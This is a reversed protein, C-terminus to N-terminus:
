NLIIELRQKGTVTFVGQFGLIGISQRYTFVDCCSQYQMKSTVSPHIKTELISDAYEFGSIEPLNLIPPHM